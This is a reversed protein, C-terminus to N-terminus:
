RLVLQTQTTRAVLREQDDTTDIQVVVTTKGVHVPTAVLTVEGERVGRFFNTKAEVTTTGTADPPLLSSTMVAGVCDALGM